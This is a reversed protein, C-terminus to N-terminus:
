CGEWTRLFAAAKILALARHSIQNKLEESLEGFTQEYGDPMFLPDYGFGGEGREAFTIRGVIIGESINLVEGRPSAIAVASVFRARREAVNVHVLESLLLRRRDADSADVGAYRASYIGPAGDLAEVELGSDDALACLGAAEAYFLAKKVANEAYTTGDEAPTGVNACDDLSLFSCGSAALISTIEKVKGRNRTAILLQGM